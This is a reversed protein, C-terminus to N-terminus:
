CQEKLMKDPVKVTSVPCVQYMQHNLGHNTWICIWKLIGWHNKKKLTAEHGDSVLHSITEVLSKVFLEEWHSSVAWSQAFFFCRHSEGRGCGAISSRRGTWPGGQQRLFVTPLSLLVNTLTAMPPPVWNLGYFGNCPINSLRTHTHACTCQPKRHSMQKLPFWTESPKRVM